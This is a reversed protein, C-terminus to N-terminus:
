LSINSVESLQSRTTLLYSVVEVEPLEVALEKLEISLAIPRNTKHSVNVKVFKNKEFGVRRVSLIYNGQKVHDITFAGNDDCMGCSVVHLTEPNILRVVAYQVPRQNEDLVRGRLTSAAFVSFTSILIFIVIFLCKGIFQNTRKTKM